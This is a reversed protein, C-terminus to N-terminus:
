QCKPNLVSKQHAFHVDIPISNSEIVVSCMCKVLITKYEFIRFVAEIKWKLLCSITHSRREICGCM